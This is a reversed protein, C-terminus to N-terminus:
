DEAVCFCMIDFDKREGGFIKVLRTTNKKWALLASSPGGDLNFAWLPQFNEMLFDTATSLRLGKTNTATVIVYNHHDVKALITRTALHDAFEWERDVIPVQDKILACGDYFSWTSVPETELIDCTPTGAYMELGQSNLVVGYFPVDELNRLVTGDTMVLSGWSTFYYDESQGPYGDPIDPYTRSIYGSGNIVLAASPVRKALTEPLALHKGWSANVKRIQRGPDKMWVTTVYVTSTRVATKQITFCLSESEFRRVVRSKPQTWVLRQEAGEAQAMHVFCLLLAVLIAMKRRM